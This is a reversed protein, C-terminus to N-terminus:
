GDKWVIGERHINAIMASSAQQMHVVDVRYPIPSEEICERLAAIKAAADDGAWDIAVDIDSSARAEGKAWSGFLYIKAPADSMEKRVIERLAALYRNEKM